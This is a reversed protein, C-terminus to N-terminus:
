RIFKKFFVTRIYCKGRAYFFNGHFYLLICPRAYIYTHFIKNCPRRLVIRKVVKKEEFNHSLFAIFDLKQGEDVRNQSFCSIILEGRDFNQFIFSKRRINDASFGADEVYPRNQVTFFPYIDLNLQAVLM